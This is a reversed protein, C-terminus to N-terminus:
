IDAQALIAHSGDKFHGMVAVHVSQYESNAPADREVDRGTINVYAGPRNELGGAPEMTVSLGSDRIAEMNSANKCVPTIYITFPIEERLCISDLGGENAIMISSNNIRQVSVKILPEYIDNSTPSTREVVGTSKGIAAGALPIVSVVIAIIVLISIAMVDIRKDNNAKLKIALSKRAEAYLLSGCIAVTTYILVTMLLYLQNVPLAYRFDEFFTEFPVTSYKGINTYALGGIFTIVAALVGIMLSWKRNKTISLSVSVCLAGAIMFLLFSLLIIHLDTVSSLGKDYHIYGEWAGRVYSLSYLIALGSILGIIMPAIITLTENMLSRNKNNM